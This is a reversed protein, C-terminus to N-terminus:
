RFSAAIEITDSDPVILYDGGNITSKVLICIEFHFVERVKAKAKAKEKEEAKAEAEAEEGLSALVGSNFKARNYL